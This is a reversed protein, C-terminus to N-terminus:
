CIYRPRFEAAWYAPTQWDLNVADGNTTRRLESATRRLRLSRNEDSATKIAGFVDASRKVIRQGKVPFAVM